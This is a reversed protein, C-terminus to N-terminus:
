PKGFGLRGLWGAAAMSQGGPRRRRAQADRRAKAAARSQTWGGGKAGSPLPWSWGGGPSRRVDARTQTPGARAGGAAPRLAAMPSWGSAAAGLLFPGVPGGHRVRGPRTACAQTQHSGRRADEGARRAPRPSDAGTRCASPRQARRGREPPWASGMSRAKAPTQEAGTSQLRSSRGRLRGALRARARRPKERALAPGTAGLRQGSTACLTPRAGCLASAGPKGRREGGGGGLRGVHRGSRPGNPGGIPPPLHPWGMQTIAPSSSATERPM